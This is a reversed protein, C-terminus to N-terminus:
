DFSYSLVINIRRNKQWENFSDYLKQIADDTNSTQQQQTDPNIQIYLYQHQIKRNMLYRLILIKSYKNIAM